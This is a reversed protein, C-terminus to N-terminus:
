NYFELQLKNYKGLLPDVLWFLHQDNKKDTIYNWKREFQDKLFEANQARGDCCIISGPTYFYPFQLIDGVMPIM